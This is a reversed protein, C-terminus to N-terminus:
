TKDALHASIRGPPLASIWYVFLQTAQSGDAVVLATLQPLAIGTSM